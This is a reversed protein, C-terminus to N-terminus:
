AHGDLRGLLRAALPSTSAFVMDLRGVTVIRAGAGTRLWESLAHVRGSECHLTLPGAATGFPAVAGFRDHAVLAAGQPDAVDARVERLTRGAAEAEIRDLITRLAGRAAGSWSAALSAVLH